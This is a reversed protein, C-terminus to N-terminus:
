ERASQRPPEVRVLNKTEFRKYCTFPPVPVRCYADICDICAFILASPNQKIVPAFSHTTVDEVECIVLRHERATPLPTQDGDIDITLPMVRLSDLPRYLSRWVKKKGGSVVEGDINISIDLQKRICSHYKSTEVESVRFKGAEAM